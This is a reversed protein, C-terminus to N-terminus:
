VQQLDHPHIHMQFLIVFVFFYCSVLNSLYGPTSQYSNLNYKLHLLLGNVSYKRIYAKLSDNQNCRLLLSVPASISVFCGAPLNSYYHELNLYLNISSYGQRLHGAGLRLMCRLHWLRDWGPGSGFGATFRVKM